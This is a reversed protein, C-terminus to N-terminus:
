PSPSQSARVRPLGGVSDTVVSGDAGLFELLPHGGVVVRLLFVQAGGAPLGPPLATLSSDTATGPGAPGKTWTARVAVVGAPAFGLVYYDSSKTTGRYRGSAPVWTVNPSGVQTQCQINYSSGPVRGTLDLRICVPGKQYARLDPGAAYRYM